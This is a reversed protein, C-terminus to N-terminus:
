KREHVFQHSKVCVNAMNILIIKQKLKQLFVANNRSQIRIKKGIFSKYRTVKAFLRM